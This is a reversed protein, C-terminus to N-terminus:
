NSEMIYKYLLDIDSKDVTYDDFKILNMIKPMPLTEKHGDPFLGLLAKYLKDLDVVDDHVVDLMTVFPSNLFNKVSDLELLSVIDIPTILNSTVGLAIRQWGSLKPLMQKDIYVALGKKVKDLSVM